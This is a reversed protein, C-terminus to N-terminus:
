MEPTAQSAQAGPGIEWGCLKGKGRPLERLKLGPMSEAYCRKARRKYRSKERTCPHTEYLGGARGRIQTQGTRSLCPVKYRRKEYRSDLEPSEKHKVDDSCQGLNLEGIRRPGEEEIANSM